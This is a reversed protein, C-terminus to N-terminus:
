HLREAAGAGCSRMAGEPLLMLMGLLEGQLFSEYHQGM